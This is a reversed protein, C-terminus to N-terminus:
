EPKKQFLMSRGVGFVWGIGWVAEASGGLVGWFRLVPWFRVTRAITLVLVLLIPEICISVGIVRVRQRLSKTSTRPLPQPFPDSKPNSTKKKEKLIQMLNHTSPSKSVSAPPKQTPGRFRNQTPVRLRKRKPNPNQNRYIPTNPNPVLKPNLDVWNDFDSESKMKPVKPPTIKETLGESKSKPLRTPRSGFFIQTSLVLLYM